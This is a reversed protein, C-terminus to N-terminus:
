IYLYIYMHFVQAASRKEQLDKLEATLKKEEEANKGAVASQLREEVAKIATELQQIEQEQQKLVAKPCAADKVELPRKPDIGISYFLISQIPHSPYTSIM